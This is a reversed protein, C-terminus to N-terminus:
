LRKEVGSSSPSSISFSRASSSVSRKSRACCACIACACGLELAAVGGVTARPVCRSPRDHAHTRRTQAVQEASFIHPQHREGPRAARALCAERQVDRGLHLLPEGVADVEHLQRVQGRGILHRRREDLRHVRALRRAARQAASCSKRRSLRM